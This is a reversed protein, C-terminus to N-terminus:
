RIPAERQADRLADFLARGIKATAKLTWAQAAVEQNRGERSGEEVMDTLRRANMRLLDAGNTGPPVQWARRGDACDDACEATPLECEATPL